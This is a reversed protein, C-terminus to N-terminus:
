KHGGASPYIFLYSSVSFLFCYFANGWFIFGLFPKDMMAVLVFFIAILYYCAVLWTTPWVSMNLTLMFLSITTIGLIEVVSCVSTAQSQQLIGVRTFSYPLLNNTFYGIDCFLTFCTSSFPWKAWFLHMGFSSYSVPYLQLLCLSICYPSIYFGM